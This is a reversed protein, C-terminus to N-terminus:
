RKKAPDGKPRYRPVYEPKLFFYFLTGEAYQGGALVEARSGTGMFIDARGPARIAGGTDQDLMFRHFAETRESLTVATTAVMVIGGLPYIRKDTALSSRATVRVGLSGSPWNAGDYETFFVYSENRYMLERVRAPERRWAERVAPLGIRDSPVMEEAVLSAGLGVYERDTKGDYGVHITAGDTLHLKASGNVHVIYAALEDELWVLETGSLLGREEIERRTPYRDTSGDPRKRGRPTGTVADTVLDTPRRYLPHTFRATRTWSAEFEPSYYGTYLVTGAGDWGVSRYIEFKRWLNKRFAGPSGSTLLLERFAVLSAAAQEHTVISEYPFFRASSPAEFWRISMEIASDLGEDRARYAVAPDPIVEGPGVRILASQGPLLPRAYDPKPEPATRCAVALIALLVSIGSIASRSM